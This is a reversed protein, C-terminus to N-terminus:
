HLTHPSSTEKKRHKNGCQLEVALMGTGRCLPCCERLLQQLQQTRTSRCGSHRSIPDAAPYASPTAEFHLVLGAVQWHTERHYHVQAAINDTETVLKIGEGRQLQWGRVFEGEGARHGEDGEGEEPEDTVQM